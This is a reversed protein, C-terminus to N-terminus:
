VGFSFFVGFLGVIFTNVQINSANDTVTTKIAMETSNFPDICSSPYSTTSVVAGSCLSNGYQNLVFSSGSKVYKSGTTIGNNSTSVFCFGLATASKWKPTASCTADATSNFINTTLLTSSICSYRVNNDTCTSIDVPNSYGECGAQYYQTFKGSGCDIKISSPNENLSMGTNCQGGDVGLIEVRYPNGTCGTGPFYEMRLMTAAFTTTQTLTLLLLLLLLPFMKNHTHQQQQTYM